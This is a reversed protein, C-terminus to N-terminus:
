PIAVFTSEKGNRRRQSDLREHVQVGIWPRFIPTPRVSHGSYHSVTGPVLLGSGVTIASLGSLFTQAATLCQNAGSTSLQSDGPSNLLTSIPGVLYTRPRGGRYSANIRWSFVIAVQPPLGSATSGLGPIAAHTSTGYNQSLGSNDSVRCSGLTWNNTQLGQVNASSWASMIGNAITQLLPANTTDTGTPTLAYFVNVAKRAAASAFNLVVKVTQALPPLSIQPAAIRYSWDGIYIRAPPKGPPLTSAPLVVPVPM